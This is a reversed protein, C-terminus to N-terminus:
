VQPVAREKFRNMRTSTVIASTKPTQPATNARGGNAERAGGASTVSGTIAPREWTTDATSTKPTAPRTPLSTEM